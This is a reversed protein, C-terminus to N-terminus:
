KLKAAKVPDLMANRRRLEAMRQQPSGSGSFGGGSRSKEAALKEIASLGFKEIVKNKLRLPLKSFAALSNPLEVVEEPREQTAKRVLDQQRHEVVETSLQELQSQMRVLSSHLAENEARLAEIQKDDM